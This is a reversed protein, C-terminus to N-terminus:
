NGQHTLDPVGLGGLAALDGPEIAGEIHVVTLELPEASLIFLGQPKDKGALIYIEAHEGSDKEHADVIRTWHASQIQARIADVDATSYEGKEKFEFSRVTVSKLGDILKRIHSANPDDSSALFGGAMKLVSGDLTIDVTDSAKAKLHDFVTRDLDRLDIPEAALSVAGAMLVAGVIWGRRKNRFEM